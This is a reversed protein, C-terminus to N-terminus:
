IPGDEKSLDTFQQPALVVQGAQRLKEYGDQGALDWFSFWFDILGTDMSTRHVYM